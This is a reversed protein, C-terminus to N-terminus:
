KAAKTRIYEEEARKRAQIGPDVALVRDFAGEAQPLALWGGWRLVNDSSMSAGWPLLITNQNRNTATQLLTGQLDILQTHGLNYTKTFEELKKQIKEVDGDLKAEQNNASRIPSVVGIVVLDRQYMKQIQDMQPMVAFSSRVDPNWFYMLIARGNMEPKKPYFGVDPTNMVIPPDPNKPDEPPANPDRPMKPWKVDKYAEPLPMTFPIEPLSTLDVGHRLADTRRKELDKAAADAAMKSNINAADEGKEKLLYQVASEVSDTTIDCYRMQGARDIVFFDPDQDQGIAKRFEGKADLALLFVTDKEAAPKKAEKWGQADHAAVVVLGDKGHADALRKALKLARVSPEYWDAWTVILVVKGSVDAPTIAGGNTWESLKSWNTVDFPKLELGDCYKRRAGEGERVVMPQQAMVTSALAVGLAALTLNLRKSWISM